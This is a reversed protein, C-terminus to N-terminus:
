RNHEHGVHGSVVRVHGALLISATCVAGHAGAGASRSDLPGSTFKKM